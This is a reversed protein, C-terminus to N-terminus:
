KITDIWAFSESARFGVIYLTTGVALDLGTYLIDILGAADTTPTTNMLRRMWIGGQPNSATVNDGPGETAVGSNYLHVAMKVTESVVPNNDSGKLTFRIRKSLMNNVDKDTISIIEQSDDVATTNGATQDYSYTIADDRDCLVPIRLVWTAGGSGSQYTTTQSVTNIKITHGTATGGPSLSADQCKTNFVVVIDQYSTIWNRNADTVRGYLYRGQTKMRMLWKKGGVCPLGQDQGALVQSYRPNWKQLIHFRGDLRRGINSCERNDRILPM